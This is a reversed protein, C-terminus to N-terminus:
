ILPKRVKELEYMRKPDKLFFNPCGLLMTLNKYQPYFQKWLGLYLTQETQIKEGLSNKISRSDNFGSSVMTIFEMNLLTIFAELEFPCFKKYEFLVRWNM